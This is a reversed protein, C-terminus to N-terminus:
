QGVYNLEQLTENSDNNYIGTFLSANREIKVQGLRHIRDMAQAEVAPNWWPDMLM